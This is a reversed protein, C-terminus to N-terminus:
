SPVWVFQGLRCHERFGLARYVSLGDPTAHLVATTCGRRRADDMAARTVTTAVGRERAGAVTGVDYLGAVGAGFFVSCTGAPRGDLRALYHRLPAHDDLGLAMTLGLFADGVFGPMEFAGCLVECWCELVSRSGVREVTVVGRAPREAPLTGLDAAMGVAHEEYLGRDALRAELDAPRTSPGTWWLLPVERRRCRAIARDIAAEVRGPDLRARLVSNFLPFPVDSLTWIMDPDDHAEARPWRQFLPFLAFLNGEIARAAGTV